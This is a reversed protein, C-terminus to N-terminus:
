KKLLDKAAEDIWLDKQEKPLSIAYELDDFARKEDGLNFCVVGRNFYALAYDPKFYIARTYDKIAEEHLGLHNKANGSNIYVEVYDPKLRIAEDFDSIAEKYRGLNNKAIGCNYHAEVYDPKLRIAEGFDSIAEKHLELNNKVIGCIYYAEAFDPKLHIAEIYHNIAEEYRKQYFKTNGEYFCIRYESVKKTTTQNHAFGSLDIFLTNASIQYHLDLEKLIGKKHKAEIIIPNELNKDDETLNILFLGSQCIIRREAQGQMTPRWLKATGDELLNNIEKEEEQIAVPINQHHLIFVKGDKEKKNKPAKKKVTQKKKENDEEKESQCAFYLAVLASDTFDLLCTAAGFHRLEALLELDTLERGEIHRFGKLEAQKLLNRHYDIMNDPILIDIRDKKKRSKLSDSVRREATSRLIWSSDTQGRYVCSVKGAKGAKEAKKAIENLYYAVIGTSPEKVM